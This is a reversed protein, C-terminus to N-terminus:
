AYNSWCDSLNIEVMLKNVRSNNYFDTTKKSRVNKKRGLKSNIEGLENAVEIILIEGNDELHQVLYTKCGRTKSEKALAEVKSWEVYLTGDRRIYKCTNARRNKFEFISLKHEAPTSFFDVGVAIADYRCGEGISDVWMVTPKLLRLANMLKLESSTKHSM